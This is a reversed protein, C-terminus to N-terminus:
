IVEVISNGIRNLGEAKRKAALEIAEKMSKCIGDLTSIKDTEVEFAVTITHLVKPM